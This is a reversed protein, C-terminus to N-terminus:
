VYENKQYFYAVPPYAYSSYSLYLHLNCIYKKKFIYLNHYAQINHKTWIHKNKKGKKEGEGKRGGGGGSRASGTNSLLSPIFFLFDLTNGRISVRFFIAQEVLFFCGWSKRGHKAELRFPVFFFLFLFFLKLM